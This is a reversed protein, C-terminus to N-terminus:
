DWGTLEISLMKFRPLLKKIDKIIKNWINQPITRNHRWYHTYGM